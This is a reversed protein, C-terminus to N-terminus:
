SIAEPYCLNEQKHYIYITLTRVQTPDCPRPHSLLAPYAQDEYDPEGLAETENPVLVPMPISPIPCFTQMTPCTQFTNFIFESVAMAPEIIASTLVPTVYGSKEMYEIVDRAGMTLWSCKTEVTFNDLDLPTPTTVPPPPPTTTPDNSGNLAAAAAAAAKAVATLNPNYDFVM